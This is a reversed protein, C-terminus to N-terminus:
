LDANLTLGNTKIGVEKLYEINNTEIGISEIKDLLESVLCYQKKKNKKDHTYDIFTFKSPVSCCIRHPWFGIIEGNSFKVKVESLIKITMEGYNDNMNTDSKDYANLKM